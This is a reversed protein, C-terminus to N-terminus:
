RGHRGVQELFEAHSIPMVEGSDMEIDRRLVEEDDAGIPGDTFGHLLFAVLGQRDEESLESAQKQIDGLQVMSNFPYQRFPIRAVEFRAAVQLSPLRPPSEVFDVVCPSDGPFSPTLGPPAPM